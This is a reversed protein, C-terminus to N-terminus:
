EVGASKRLEQKFKKTGLRKKEDKSRQAYEKRYEPFSEKTLGLNRNYKDTEKIHKIVKRTSEKLNSKKGELKM